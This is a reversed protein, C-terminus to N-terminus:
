SDVEHESFHSTERPLLEDIPFDGLYGRLQPLLFSEAIQLQGLDFLAFPKQLVSEVM